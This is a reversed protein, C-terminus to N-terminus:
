WSVSVSCSRSVPAPSNYLFCLSALFLCSSMQMYVTSQQLTYSVSFYCTFLSVFATASPVHSMSLSVRGADVGHALLLNVVETHGHQAALYLPSRSFPLAPLDVLAGVNLLNRVIDTHGGSSAAALPTM